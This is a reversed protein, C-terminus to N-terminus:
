VAIKLQRRTLAARFQLLATNAPSRVPPEGMSGQGRATAVGQHAAGIGQTDTEAGQDPNAATM